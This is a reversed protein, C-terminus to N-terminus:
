CLLSGVEKRIVSKIEKIILEEQMQIFYAGIGSAMSNVFPGLNDFRFNVADYRFPFGMESIVVNGEPGCRDGDSEGEEVMDFYILTEFSAGYLNIAFDRTGNSDVEWWGFRGKLDYEGTITLEDFGLKVNLHLDTLNEDRTVTAEDLRISSLGFLKIGSMKVDASYASATLHYLYNFDSLFGYMYKLM